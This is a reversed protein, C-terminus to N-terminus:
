TKILISDSIQKELKKKRKDIIGCLHNFWNCHNIIRSWEKSKATKNLMNKQSGSPWQPPELWQGMKVDGDNNMVIWVMPITQLFILKSIDIHDKHPTLYIDDANTILNCQLIKLTIDICKNNLNKYKKYNSLNKVRAITKERNM